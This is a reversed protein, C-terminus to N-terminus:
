IFIYSNIVCQRTKNRVSRNIKTFHIGLLQHTPVEDRHNTIKENRIANEDKRTLGRTRSQLIKSTATWWARWSAWSLRDSRSSGAMSPRCARGRRSTKTALGGGSVRCSWRM